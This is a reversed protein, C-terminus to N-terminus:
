KNGQPPAGYASQLSDFLTSPVATSSADSPIVVGGAQLASRVFSTCQHNCLNYTPNPNARQADIYHQVQQDQTPTTHITLYRAQKDTAADHSAQDNKIVGAVDSCFLVSLGRQKPYLGVTSSSNVGIGVHGTTGPFYAVTVDLGLADILSIPNDLTYAYTNIGGDLGIPDSEVYRGVAPDYDRNWNQSLGTESDFYQGPYRLNYAFPRGIM